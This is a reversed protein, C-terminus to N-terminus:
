FPEPTYNETYRAFNSLRIPGMKLLAASMGAAFKGLKIYRVRTLGSPALMSDNNYTSGVGIALMQKVGNLYFFISSGIKVIAVRKLNNLSVTKTLTTSYVGSVGKTPDDLQYRNGFGGNGFRLSQLLTDSANFFALEGMYNTNSGVNISSYELTFDGATLNVNRDFMITASLNGLQGALTINDITPTTEFVVGDDTLLTIGPDVTFGDIKFFSPIENEGPDLNEPAITSLLVEFM